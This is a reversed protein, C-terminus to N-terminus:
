KILVGRNGLEGAASEGDHDGTAIAPETAMHM